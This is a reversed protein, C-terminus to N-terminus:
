IPIAIPQAQVPVPSIVQPVEPGRAAYSNRPDPAQPIEEEDRGLAEEPVSGDAPQERPTGSSYPDQAPVSTTQEESIGPVSPGQTGDYAYREEAANTVVPEQSRETYQEPAAGNAYEDQTSRDVYQEAASGNVYPEETTGNAYHEGGNGNVYQEPATGNAYRERGAENIYSAEASGNVDRVSDSASTEVAYSRRGNTARRAAAPLLGSSPLEGASSQIPVTTSEWSRLDNEADELIQRTAPMHDYERPSDGPVVPTDDLHNLLRRAHRALLIQKESREIVAATHIDM